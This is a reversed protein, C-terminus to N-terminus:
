IHLSVTAAETLFDLAGCRFGHCDLRDWLEILQEQRLDVESRRNVSLARSSVLQMHLDAVQFM